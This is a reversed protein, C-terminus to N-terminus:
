PVPDGDACAEKLASTVARTCDDVLSRESSDPLYSSRFCLTYLGTHPGRCLVRLPGRLLTKLFGIVRKYNDPTVPTFFLDVAELDAKSGALARVVIPELLNYMAEVPEVDSRESLAFFVASALTSVHIHADGSVVDNVRIKGTRIKQITDVIEFGYERVTEEPLGLYESLFAVFDRDVMAIRLKRRSLEEIFERRLLKSRIKELVAEDRRRRGPLLGWSM